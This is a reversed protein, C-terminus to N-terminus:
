ITKTTKELEHACLQLVAVDNILYIICEVADFFLYSLYIVVKSNM